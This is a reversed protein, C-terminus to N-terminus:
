KPPPFSEEGGQNISSSSRSPSFPKAAEALARASLDSPGGPPFGVFLTVPKAPYEAAQLLGGTLLMMIGAALVMGSFKRRHM